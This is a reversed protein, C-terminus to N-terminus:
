AWKYLTHQRKRGVAAIAGGVIQLRQDVRSV